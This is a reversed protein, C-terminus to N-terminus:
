SWSSLIGHVTEKVAIPLFPKAIYDDIGMQEVKSITDLNKDATM